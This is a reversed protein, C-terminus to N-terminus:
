YGLCLRPSGEERDCRVCDCAIWSGDNRVMRLITEDMQMARLSVSTANM